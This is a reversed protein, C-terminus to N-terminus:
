IRQEDFIGDEAVIVISMALIIHGLNFGPVGLKPAQRVTM